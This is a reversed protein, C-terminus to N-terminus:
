HSEATRGREPADEVGRQGPHIHGSLIRWATAAVLPVQGEGLAKIRDVRGAMGNVVRDVDPETLWWSAGVTAAREQCADPRQSERLALRQRAPHEVDAPVSRRAAYAPDDHDRADSNLPAAAEPDGSDYALLWLRKRHHPANLDDAGLVCWCADYGASALDGLLAGFCPDALLRPANELFVYPPRIACVLRFADPWLHRPDDGGTHRGAQSFPQCPLGVALIDVVGRWPIGDFQRLDGFLPFWPLCGDQQRALIVHQCYPDIEIAGVTRHGLLCDALIGGGAGACCHLTRPRHALL